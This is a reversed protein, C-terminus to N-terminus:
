VKEYSPNLTAYGMLVMKIEIPLMHSKYGMSIIRFSILEKLRFVKLRFVKLRFVKLRFVKLRFVKLRFGIEM